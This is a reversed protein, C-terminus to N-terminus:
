ERSLLRLYLVVISGSCVSDKKRHPQRQLTSSSSSSSSSTANRENAECRQSAFFFLYSLYLFLLFFFFCFLLFVDHVRPRIIAVCVMQEPSSRKPSEATVINLAGDLAREEPLVFSRIASPGRERERKRLIFAAHGKASNWHHVSRIFRGNRYNILKTLIESSTTYCVCAYMTEKTFAAGFPSSNIKM